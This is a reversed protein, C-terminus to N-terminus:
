RWRDRPGRPGSEPKLTYGFSTSFTTTSISPMAPGRAEGPTTADRRLASDAPLVATGPEESMSFGKYLILSEVVIRSGSAPRRTPRRGWLSGSRDRWTLLRLRM